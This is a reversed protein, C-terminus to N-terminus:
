PNIERLAPNLFAQDLGASSLTWWIEEGGAGGTTPFPMFTQKKGLSVSEPGFGLPLLSAHDTQRAKTPRFIQGCNAYIRVTGM